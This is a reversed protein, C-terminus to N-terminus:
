LVLIASLVVAAAAVVVVFVAAPLVRLGLLRVVDLARSLTTTWRLTALEGVNRGFNNM